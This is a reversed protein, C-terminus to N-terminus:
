QDRGEDRLRSIIQKLRNICRPAVGPTLESPSAVGHESLIMSLIETETGGSSIIQSLLNLIMQKQAPACQWDERRVREVFSDARDVAFSAGTAEKADDVIEAKVEQFYDRSKNPIFEEADQTFFESGNVALLTAAILSRKQAMKQITNVQDAINENLVRGAPQDTIATDEIDFKAGCGGRKRFCVWGGGYEQKGRIIASEGCQPCKRQAERYRYKQEWSNASGDGEAIIMDGRQLRCRYLYFFFPEGNHDAGTWDEVARIIEFRSTLGFLTCLKEAGPKLLTPKDTGPIVGYDVGERMVTRVFEVVHNFRDVAQQVSLAPMFPEREVAVLSTDAIQKDTGSEIMMNM